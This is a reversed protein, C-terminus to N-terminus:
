LFHFEQQGCISIEVCPAHTFLFPPLLRPPPPPFDQSEPNKKKSCILIKKKRGPRDEIWWWEKKKHRKQRKLAKGLNQIFFIGLLAKKETIPWHSLEEFCFRSIKEETLLPMRKRLIWVTELVVRRRRGTQMVRGSKGEKKTSLSTPLKAFTNFFSKRERAPPPAFFGYVSRASVVFLCPHSVRHQRNRVEKGQCCIGALLLLFQILNM